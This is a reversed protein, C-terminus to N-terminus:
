RVFAIGSAKQKPLEIQSIIKSSSPTVNSLGGADKSFLFKPAKKVKDKHTSIASECDSDSPPRKYAGSLSVSVVNSFALNPTM